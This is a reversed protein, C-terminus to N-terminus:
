KGFKDPYALKLEQTPDENTEYEFTGATSIIKVKYVIKHEDDERWVRVSTVFHNPFEKNYPHESIIKDPPMLRYREGYNLASGMQSKWQGFFGRGSEQASKRAREIESNLIEPTLKAVITRKETVVLTYTDSSLGFWKRKHLNQAVAVVKEMLDDDGSARRESKSERSQKSSAIVQKAGCEICFRAGDQVENGCESCFVM